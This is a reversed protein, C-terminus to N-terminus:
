NTEKLYNEFAEDVLNAFIPKDRWAKGAVERSPWISKRKRAMDAIGPIPASASGDPQSMGLKAMVAANPKLPPDLMVLQQFLEPADAAAAASIVGGLSNGGVLAIHPVGKEAILQRAIHLLDDIMHQWHYGEPADPKSSAGHGRADLVVVHYHPALLRAVPAWTSACFGNAHSLLALPRNNKWEFGCITTDANVQWTRPVPKLISNM